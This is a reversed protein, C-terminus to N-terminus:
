KDQENIEKNVIIFRYEDRMNIADAVYLELLENFPYSGQKAGKSLKLIEKKAVFVLDYQATIKDQHQRYFALLRRKGTNRQVAKGVKKGSVFAVKSDLQFPPAYFVLAYQNSVRRATSFFHKFHRKTKIHKSRPLAFKKESLDLLWGSEGKGDDHM